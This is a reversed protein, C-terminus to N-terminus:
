HRPQSLRRMLRSKTRAATNRHIIHSSAARDLKSAVMQMLQGAENLKQAGVLGLFRKTLTKLESRVTQNRHTRRRDQRIQKVSAHKIPM